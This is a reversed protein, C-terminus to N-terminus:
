RPGHGPQCKDLYVCSVVECRLEHGCRNERRPLVFVHFSKFLDNRELGYDFGTENAKKQAGELAEKYKAMGDATQTWNLKNTTRKTMDLVIASRTGSPLM